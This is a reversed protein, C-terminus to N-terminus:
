PPSPLIPPRKKFTETVGRLRFKEVWPCPTGAGEFM